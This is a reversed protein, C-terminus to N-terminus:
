IKNFIDISISLAKERRNNVADLLEEKMDALTRNYANAKVNYPDNPDSIYETNYVDNLYEEAQEM